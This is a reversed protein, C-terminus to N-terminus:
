NRDGLGNVVGGCMEGSPLAIKAHASFLVTQLTQEDSQVNTQSAFVPLMTKWMATDISLLWTSKLAFPNSFNRVLSPCSSPLVGAITERMPYASDQSSCWTLGIAAKANEIRHGVPSVYCMTRGASIFAEEKM